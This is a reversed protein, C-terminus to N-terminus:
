EVIDETVIEIRTWRDAPIYYHLSRASHWIPRETKLDSLMGRKYEIMWLTKDGEFRYFLFVRKEQKDAYEIKSAPMLWSDHTDSRVLRGKKDHAKRCKLEVYCTAGEFDIVDYRSSTKELKEGICAELIPQLVLEQRWGYEHDATIAM